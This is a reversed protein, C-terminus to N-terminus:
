EKKLLRVINSITSKSVSDNNYHEDSKMGSQIRSTYGRPFSQEAEIRCYKVMLPHSQEYQEITKRPHIIVQEAENAERRSQEHKEQESAFLNQESEEKQESILPNTDNSTIMDMPFNEESIELKKANSLDSENQEAELSVAENLVYDDIISTEEIELEVEDGIEIKKEDILPPTVEKTESLERLQQLTTDIDIEPESNVFFEKEEMVSIDEQESLVQEPATVMKNQEHTNTYLASSHEIPSETQEPVLVDYKNPKEESTITATKQEGIEKLLAEPSIGNGNNGQTHIKALRVIEDRLEPSVQIPSSKAHENVEKLMDVLQIGEELEERTTLMEKLEDSEATLAEKQLLHTEKRLEKTAEYVLKRNELYGHLRKSMEKHLGKESAETNLLLGIIVFVVNAVSFIWVYTFTFLQNEELKSLYLREADAHEEALDTISTNYELELASLKKTKEIEQREINTTHTSVVKQTAKNHINVRGKYKVQEKHTKIRIDSEKSLSDYYTTWKDLEKKYEAKLAAKKQSLPIPKYATVTKSEAQKNGGKLSFFITSTVLVALLSGIIITNKRYSGLLYVKAEKSNEFAKKIEADRLIIRWSLIIEYVIGILIVIVVDIILLIGFMWVYPLGELTEIAKINHFISLPIFFFMGIYHICTGVISEPKSADWKPLAYRWFDKEVTKSKDSM